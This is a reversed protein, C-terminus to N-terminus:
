GLGACVDALRDMTVPKALFEDFGAKLAQRRVASGGFGTLAVLPLDSLADDRRVTKALEYGREGPLGIDCIVMDPRREAIAALGESVSSTIHADHGVRDLLLTLVEAIDPDDEVLLVRRRQLAPIDPENSASTPSDALPLHVVFEAGKGLGGSHAQVRGGHLEVLGKVLALGLGLGEGSREQDQSAQRFPEFIDSLMDQDIGKGTDRVSVQAEGGFSSVELLITDSAETFKVANMLLNEIAQSIRVPDAEVWVATDGDGLSVELHRNSLQTARDEILDDVVQSLDVTTTELHIKGRTIRSVDMLGDILRKIQMSQRDLVGQVRELEPKKNETRQLLESVSRIATIPNRLEHGLVALFQDKQRDAERLEAEARKRATVDSIFGELAIAVGDEFVGCGQEWMWRIEGSAHRIRYEVKFARREGLAEQVEEWLQERDVECILEGWHVDESLLAGAPYGCLQEAGESVFLMPWKLDIRCRYAMGPLNSMLTYLRRRSERHEQQIRHQDSVDIHIGVMGEVDDEKFFIGRALLWCEEGDPRVFRCEIEYPAGKARARRFANTVRERDDPHIMQTHADTTMTQARPELGLLSADQADIWIKFEALDVRWVGVGSDSLARGLLHPEVCDSVDETHHDDPM